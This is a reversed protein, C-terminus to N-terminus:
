DLRKLSFHRRLGQGDHVRGRGRGRRGHCHGSYFAAFAASAAGGLVFCRHVADVGLEERADRVLPESLHAVLLCADVLGHAPSAGLQVLQGVLRLDDLQKRGAM